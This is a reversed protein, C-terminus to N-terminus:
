SKCLGGYNFRVRRLPYTKREGRKGHAMRGARQKAMEPMKGDLDIRGGGKREGAATSYEKRGGGM